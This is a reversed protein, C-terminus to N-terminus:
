GIEPIRIINWGHQRLKEATLPSINMNALFELDLVMTPQGLCIEPDVTICDFGEM